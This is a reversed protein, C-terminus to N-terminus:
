KREACELIATATGKAKIADRRFGCSTTTPACVPITKGAADDYTFCEATEAPECDGMETGTAAVASQLQDCSSRNRACVGLTVNAPSRACFFGKATTSEPPDSSTANEPVTPPREAHATSRTPTTPPAAEDVVTTEDDPPTERRRRHRRLATAEPAETVGDGPSEDYARRAAECDSAWSEGTLFSAGHIVTWILSSALLANGYDSRESLSLLGISALANSAGFLIDLGRPGYSTSCRPEHPQSSPAYESPLHDQFLWACGSLSAIAVLGVARRM